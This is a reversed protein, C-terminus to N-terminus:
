AATRPRTEPIFLGVILSLLASFALFAFLATYATGPFVGDPGVADKWFGLIVGSVNGFLAIFVFAAFNLVAVALGTVEPPNLEKAMISFFSFFGAPFALLLYAAILVGVPLHRYFAAFGTLAGALVM